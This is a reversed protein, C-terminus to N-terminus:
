LKMASQDCKNTGFTQATELLHKVHLVYHITFCCYHFGPLSEMSNFNYFYFM